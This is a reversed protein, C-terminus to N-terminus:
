GAVQTAATRNAHRKEVGIKSDEIIAGIGTRSYSISQTFGFSLTVSSKARYGGGPRRGEGPRNEGAGNKIYHKKLGAFGRMGM